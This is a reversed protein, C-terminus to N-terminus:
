QRCGHRTRRCGRSGTWSSASGRSGRGRPGAGFPGAERWVAGTERSARRRGKDREGKLTEVSGRVAKFEAALRGVEESTRRLDASAQSWSSRPPIQRVQRGALSRHWLRHRAVPRAGGHCGDARRGGCRRADVRPKAAKVAAGMRESLAAMGAPKREIEVLRSARSTRPDEAAQLEPNAAAASTEQTESAPIGPVAGDVSAAEPAQLAAASAQVETEARVQDAEGGTTTAAARSGGRRFRAALKSTNM